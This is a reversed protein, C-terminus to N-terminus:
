VLRPQIEPASTESGITVDCGRYYLWLIQVTDIKAVLVVDGLINHRPCNSKDCSSLKM